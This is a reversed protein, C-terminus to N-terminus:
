VVRVLSIVIVRAAGADILTRSCEELTSGTTLVDDVLALKKQAVRDPKVVAFAGLLNRMRDSRNMRAQSPTPRRRLLVDTWLPVGCTRGISRALKEAQNYGRQRQRVKHLPVPILADIERTYGLDMMLQGLNQGLPEALSWFGSYKFFHILKQLDDTYPYLALSREFSPAFRLADQLDQGSLDEEDLLALGALCKEHILTENAQLYRDCLLCLPPYVFDTVMRCFFRATSWIRRGTGNIWSQAM